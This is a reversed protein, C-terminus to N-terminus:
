STSTAAASRRSSTRSRPTPSGSPRSPPTTPGSPALAGSSTTGTSATVEVTMPATPPAANSEGPALKGLTEILEEVIEDPSRQPADGIQEEDYFAALADRIPGPIRAETDDDTWHRQGQVRFRIVATAKRIQQEEFSERLRSEAEAVLAAHRIMARHEGDELKVPIRMRLSLIRAATSDAQDPSFGDSLLAQALSGAEANFANQYRHAAVHRAEGALVAGHIPLEITIQEGAHVAEITRTPLPGDFFSPM